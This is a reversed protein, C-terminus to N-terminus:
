TIRSESATKLAAVTAAAATTEIDETTHAASVYMLGKPILHVGQELLAASFRRATASDSALADGYSRVPNTSVFAHVVGTVSNVTIPLEAHAGADRLAAALDKSLASLRPYMDAEAQEMYTVAALAAATCIPNANFTGVHAVRFSAAPEMAAESGCVASIPFGGGLAKGLITMDPVVGLAGQAGGLSLRYGTIVEDFILLTGARHTMERVKELYGTEPTLCGGNVNVPEMIVAAVDDSLVAALADLDNWECVTTSAAALPDQGKTGADRGKTGPVGIHIPDLWGHYHGSFKVIRTRGTAARAIRIAAHVAESGTSNFIVREASPVTRCVAEALEAEARHCAGYGLGTALQRQVAEVVTRPSHGLLMPGFALAYDIYENGDVDVLRADHGREFCIPIPQQSARFATAVGGALSRRARAQHSRSGSFRDKM